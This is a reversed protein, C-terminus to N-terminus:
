TTAWLPSDDVEGEAGESDSSPSSCSCTTIARTREVKCGGLGFVEM